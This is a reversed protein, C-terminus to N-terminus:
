KEKRKAKVINWDRYTGSPPGHNELYWKKRKVSDCVKCINRRGDANADHRVFSTLHRSEGCKKCVKYAGVVGPKM